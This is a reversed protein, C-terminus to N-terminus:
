NPKFAKIQVQGRTAEYTVAATYLKGTVTAVAGGFDITITKTTISTVSDSIDNLNSDLSESDKYIGVSKNGSVVTEGFSFSILPILSIAIIALISASVIVELLTFGKKNM